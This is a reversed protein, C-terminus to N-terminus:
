GDNHFEKLWNRTATPSPLFVGLRDFHLRGCLDKLHDVAQGGVLNLLILALVHDSDRYGRRHRVGLSSDVIDPLGLMRFLKVVLWLGGFPSTGSSGNQIEIHAEKSRLAGRMKGRVPRRRENERHIKKKNQAM